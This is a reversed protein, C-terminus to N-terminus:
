VSGEICKCPHALQQAVSSLTRAPASFQQGVVGSLAISASHVASTGSALVPHSLTSALQESLQECLHSISGRVAAASRQPTFTDHPETDSPKLYFKFDPRRVTRVCVSGNPDRRCLQFHGASCAHIRDIENRIDDEYTSLLHSERCLHEDRCFGKRM